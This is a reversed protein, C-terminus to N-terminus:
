WFLTEIIGNISKTISATKDVDGNIVAEVEQPKDKVMAPLEIIFTSGKGKVSKVIIDGGMMRCFRRSLPLGLGTGGYNRTTSEDAQAFEKFVLDIKEGPIGVGTDHVAINIWDQGDRFNHTGEITITGKETFKAANSLLNFLAQRVKTLDAHMSGLNDALRLELRNNKKEVLPAITTGCEEIMETLDFDELYLDMRGAEIKSLDLVDNILSLLHKGAANIKKLDPVMDDHGEDKADETLMESYGIIVNMPTRIEHSMNALFNSKAETASEAQQKAAKLKEEGERLMEENHKIENLDIITRLAASISNEAQEIWGIQSETFDNLSGLELVGITQDNYILPYVFVVKPPAEGFGLVVRIHEPIEEIMIPKMDKAVQGVFGEGVKFYDPLDKNQPYGYSAVRQFLNERNFIFFAVLSIKLFRAIYCVINNSLTTINQVNEMTKNLGTLGETIRVAEEAEKKASLLAIEANKRENIEKKLKEQSYYISRFISTGILIFLVLTSIFVIIVTFRSTKIVELSKGIATDRMDIVLRSLNEINESISFIAEDMVKHVTALEKEQKLSQMKLTYMSRDGEILLSTLDNIHINLEEALKLLEPTQELNEKLSNIANLTRQISQNIQNSKISRLMDINSELVMQRSITALGTVGAQINSNAQQIEPQRGLTVKMLINHFEKSEEPKDAMKRIKRKSRKLSLSIKGTITETIVNVVVIKADLIRLQNALQENITLISKTNDFLKQDALLFNNYVEDIKTLVEPGRQLNNGYQELRRRELNFAKELGGREEYPELDDISKASLVGRQRKIFNSTAIAIGRNASQLPLAVSILRKQDSSLWSNSVISAASLIIISSIGVIVLIALLVKVSINRM